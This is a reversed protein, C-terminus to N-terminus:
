GRCSGAFLRLSPRLPCPPQFIWPIVWFRGWEVLWKVPWGFRRSGSIQNSVFWVDTQIKALTVAPHSCCVADAFSRAVAYSMVELFV